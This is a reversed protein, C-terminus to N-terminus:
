RALSGTEQRQSEGRTCQIDVNSTLSSNGLHKIHANAQQRNNFLNAEFPKNNRAYRAFFFALPVLAQKIADWSYLHTEQPFWDSTRNDNHVYAKDSPLQKSVKDVKAHVFIQSCPVVTRLNKHIVKTKVACHSHHEDATHQRDLVKNDRRDGLTPLLIFSLPTDSESSQIELNPNRALFISM